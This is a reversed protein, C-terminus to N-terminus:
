MKRPMPVAGARPMQDPHIAGAPGRVLKPGQPQSGTQPQGPGQQGAGGMMVQQRMMAAAKLQMSQMHRQVHIKKNGYEDGNAQIDLMHSQLHKPDDDLPHVAVDFGQALMSNELQPDMALQQRMDVLIQRGMRWGFINGAAHELAPAPNLQYGAKQLDQSLGRAVNLFAIQQQQMQANRAQEVGFWTFGFRNRTQQPPVSEMRAVVGMEGFMQVTVEGDRFQHDYDVFRELMPTMGGEEVVSCAEATTLIDVTQELAIEAQNRKVGPRGTQQPLMAPNVGLTQFITQTDAQIAPIAQQWLPPFEVIKTSNPDVEWVAGLNLILTSTRPNKAPDTMVFPIMSYTMADAAQQAVQNAHYQLTDVGAGIVSVGKFSGTQKAQPFSLLPCRDNWYPNRRATLILDYGGYLMKCLRSGEGDCEEVKWTEYVQFFKGDGKIGAAELPAKSSSKVVDDRGSMHVLEKGPQRMVEGRDIMDELTEKTWRRIITVSGGQRLADDVSRATVPHVLVDSDHLVEVAPCQDVLVEPVIDDIEEGELEAAADPGIGPMAVRAPRTERSVIHRETREWDVYLNYHGEIDGNLLLPAIVQTRLQMNRIYTELLATIAHPVGGDVSTADIYRGSAPFMQNLFRTKRAQVANFVIPVYIASTGNYYQWQNLKCNYIDWYDAIADARNEQDQFGRRIKAFIECLEAHRKSTRRPALERDRRPLTLENPMRRWRPM